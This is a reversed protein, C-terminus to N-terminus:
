SLRNCIYDVANEVTKIDDMDEDPISINYKKEIEVIIEIHDLSDAGFDSEINSENTIEEPSIGLKDSLIENFENFVEEKKM